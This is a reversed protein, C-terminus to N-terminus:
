LPQRADEVADRSVSCPQGRTNPHTNRPQETNVTYDTHSKVPEGGPSTGFRPANDYGYVVGGTNYGKQAKRELADRSRQSAKEREVEAAYSKLTVMVRQEPTDAKEEENSLYYFLRRGKAVIEDIVVANRLMDRGLRSVESMIVVDFQKLDNLLRKLGPRNHFEAGSIGDDVYIHREDVTWGKTQAYTKANDMQRTVSKNEPNRNSDDTSKRAYIAAKLMSLVADALLEALVDLFPKLADPVPGTLTPNGEAEDKSSRLEL